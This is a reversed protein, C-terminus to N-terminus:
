KRKRKDKKWQEDIWTRVPSVGIQTWVQMVYDLFFFISIYIKHNLSKQKLNSPGYYEIIQQLKCTYVLCELVTLLYQFFIKVEFYICVKKQYTSIEYIAFSTLYTGSLMSCYKIHLKKETTCASLSAAVEALSSTSNSSMFFFSSWFWTFFPM